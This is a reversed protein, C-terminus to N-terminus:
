SGGRMWVVFYAPHHIGDPQCERPTMRAGITGSWDTDPPYVEVREVEDASFWSLPRKEGRVGNILVCVDGPAGAAPSGRGGVIYIQRGNGYWSPLGVLSASAPSRRVVWDLPEKKFRALENRGITATLSSKLRQRRDFDEWASGSQGFGSQETIEVASLTHPLATLRVAVDHMEGKGVKVTLNAPTFGMRRARIVYDGAALGAFFFVGDEYSTAHRGTGILQLEVGSIPRLASDVVVGGISSAGAVKEHKDLVLVTDLAHPVPDLRISLTTAQAAVAKWSFDEALYGLRRFVVNYYGPPAAIRFTGTTDTRMGYGGPDVRVEANSLPEGYEDKVLGSLISTRAATSDRAQALVLQPLAILVLFCSSILRRM